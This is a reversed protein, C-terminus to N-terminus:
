SAASVIVTCTDNYTVGDVTISATVITNGVGAGEVVGGSTVTAIAVATSTWTVTEGAPNTIARIKVEDGVKCRVVHTSLVVSANGTGGAMEKIVTTPAITITMNQVENVGGGTKTVTIYGDFEFKGDAGTPTAEENVVDAGLWVAFHQVEGELDKIAHFDALSYNADFTMAETEQIGLIYVRASDSMTTADLMEPVLRNGCLSKIRQRKCNGTLEAYRKM